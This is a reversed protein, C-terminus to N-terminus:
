KKRLFWFDIQLLKKFKEIKFGEKEMIKEVNKRKIKRDGIEWCHCPDIWVKRQIIQKFFSKFNSKIWSPLEFIKAEQCSLPTIVMIRARRHPITIIARGGHNLYSYINALNKELDEFPIHELVDACILCDFKEKLEPRVERLDSLIDPKLKPNIDMVKYDEVFDKLCNKVIENGVGIELIKKPKLAIVEKLIHYYRFWNSLNIGDLYDNTEFNFQDNFIEKEM